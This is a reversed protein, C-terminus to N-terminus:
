IEYLDTLMFPLLMMVTLGSGQFECLPDTTIYELCRHRNIRSALENCLLISESAMTM